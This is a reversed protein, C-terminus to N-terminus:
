KVEAFRIATGGGKGTNLKLVTGADVAHTTIDIPLPNSTVDADKGDQYIEAIYKKSSEVVKFDKTLPQDKLVFGLRSDGILTQGNRQITYFPIGGNKLTFRVSILKDPSSVELPKEKGSLKAPVIVLFTFLVALAKM